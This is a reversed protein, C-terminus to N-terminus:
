VESGCPEEPESCSPTLRGAATGGRLEDLLAGLRAPLERACVGAGEKVAEECASMGVLRLPPFSLRGEHSPPLFRRPLSLSPLM